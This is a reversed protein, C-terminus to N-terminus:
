KLNILPGDSSFMNDTVQLSVPDTGAPVDFIVPGSMTNGPNIASAWNTDSRLYIAAMADADFTSGAADVLKTYATFFTESKKGVNKVQIDVQVYTGQATQSLPEEGITPGIEAIGTVTFELSGVTVPTNLGPAAPEAQESAQPEAGADQSSSAPADAAPKTDGSTASGSCGVLTILLAATVAATPLFTIRSM